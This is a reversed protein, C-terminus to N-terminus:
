LISVPFGLKVEFFEQLIFDKLFILEINQDKAKEIASKLLPLGYLCGGTIYIIKEGNRDKLMELAKEVALEIDSGGASPKKDFTSLIEKYDSSFEFFEDIQHSFQIIAIEGENLLDKLFDEHEEKMQQFINPNKMALQGSGQVLLVANKM